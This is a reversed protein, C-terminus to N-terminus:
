SPEGQGEAPAPDGEQRSAGRRLAAQQLALEFVEEFRSTVAEWSLREEAIRRGNEAWRDRAVPSSAVRRLADTWAEIDGPAVILGNHEHEVLSRLREVDACVVPLGCAMARAVHHANVRDTLAPVAFLTSAGVLGPLEERRVHSLWHVRDGIGLRGVTARLTPAYPGDGVLVLNWDSRQGVTRAFATVLEHLGRDERLRGIFLLIRGRIRHRSVLRSTLGPRFEHVDVGHPIVHVRDRDFGEELALERAPRDLAVVADATRRVFPGWCLEGTRKLFRQYWPGGGPAADEVLVLGADLKRAMRAGRLAAPSLADYSLLVDPEFSQLANWWASAERGDFELESSRPILGPPAGFGRVSYGRGLLEQALKPAHHAWKFRLQLSHGLTVALPDLLLAVRLPSLPCPPQPSFGHVATRLVVSEFM